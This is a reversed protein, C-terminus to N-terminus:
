KPSLVFLSCDYPVSARRCTGGFSSFSKQAALVAHTVDFEDFSPVNLEGGGPSPDTVALGAIFHSHPHVDLASRPMGKSPSGSVWVTLTRIKFQNSITRSHRPESAVKCLFLLLVSPHKEDSRDPFITHGCLSFSDSLAQEISRLVRPLWRVTERSMGGDLPSRLTYM